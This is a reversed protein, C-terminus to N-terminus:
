FLFKVGVQLQGVERDTLSNFPNAGVSWDTSGDADTINVGFISFSTEITMWSTVVFDIGPSVQLGYTNVDDSFTLPAAIQGFLFIPGSINWYKRVLPKVVFADVDYAVSEGAVNVFGEEKLYGAGIGVAVSPSVFTGVIPLIMTSKTGKVDSYSIEGGAFWTGQLGQASISVSFVALVAVLLLKKM